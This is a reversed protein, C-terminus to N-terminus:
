KGNPHTFIEIPAFDPLYAVIDMGAVAFTYGAAGLKDHALQRRLADLHLHEFRIINPRLASELTMEVIEYDFGEADIQLLSVREIGHKTLLTPLRLAPVEVTKIRQELNKFYPAHAMVIDRSFSAIQDTGTSGDAECPEVLYLKATGDTSAVACQEFSVWPATEYNKKLREFTAPIPEVLLSQWQYKLIYPRVPDYSIGDNAGIQVCVFPEPRLMERDVLLKFVDIENGRPFAAKQIVYNRKALFANVQKKLSTVISM